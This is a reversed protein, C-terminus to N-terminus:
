TAVSYFIYDKNKEKVKRGLSETNAINNIIKVLKAKNVRFLFAASMEDSNQDKSYKFARERIEKNIVTV